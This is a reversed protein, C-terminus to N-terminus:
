QLSLSSSSGSSVLWGEQEMKQQLLEDVQRRLLLNERVCDELAGIMAHMREELVSFRSSVDLSVAAGASMSPRAEFGDVKNVVETRLRDILGILTAQTRDLDARAEARANEVGQQALTAYAATATYQALVQQEVKVMRDRLEISVSATGEESEPDLFPKTLEDYDMWTKETRRMDNSGAKNNAQLPRHMYWVDM